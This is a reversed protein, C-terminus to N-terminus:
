TASRGNRNKAISVEIPWVEQDSPLGDKRWLMVVRDEHQEIEGSDRLDSLKPRGDRGEVERNLQALLLVPVECERALEKM